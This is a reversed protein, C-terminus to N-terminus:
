EIAKPYDRIGDAFPAHGTVPMVLTIIEEAQTRVGKAKDTLCALLPKVMAAASDAGLEPIAAANQLIWSLGGGRGEPNPDKAMEAVHAVVNAAGIADAWKNIATIAESRM